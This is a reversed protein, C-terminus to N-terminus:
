FVHLFTMYTKVVLRYMQATLSWFDAEGTENLQSSQGSENTQMQNSSNKTWSLSCLHILECFQHDM